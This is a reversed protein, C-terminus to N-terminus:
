GDTTKKKGAPPRKPPPKPACAGPGFAYIARTYARAGAVESRHWAAIHARKKGAHPGRKGPRRLRTIISAVQDRHLGLEDALQISTSPGKEKLALLLRDATNGWARRTM